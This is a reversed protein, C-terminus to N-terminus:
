PPQGNQRWPGRSGACGNLGALSAPRDTIWRSPIEYKCQMGEPAFLLDITGGLEYPILERIISSGYGPRTPGIVPPGGMEKWELVLGDPVRGSRRLNWRVIVRGHPSSLAGYKGANTVLEHLVMVLPQVADSILIIDPGEVKSNGSATFPPWNRM